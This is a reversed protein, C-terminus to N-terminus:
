IFDESVKAIKLSSCLLARNNNQFLTQDFTNQLDKNLLFEFSVM